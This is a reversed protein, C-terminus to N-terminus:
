GLPELVFRQDGCQFQAVADLRVPADIRVWLGNLGRNIIRWGRRGEVVEAHIPSVFPDDLLLRPAGEIAVDSRGILFPPPPCDLSLDSGGRLGTRLFRATGDGGREFTLRTGGIQLNLGPRLKATMVRVWTGDTSGTDTLLWGGGPLRDLRAHHRDLFPDQPIAIGGTIRGVVLADERLRITEGHDRGDDVVHLLAMPPRRGPRWPVTGADETSTPPPAAMVATSDAPPCRGAAPDGAAPTQHSKLLQAWGDFSEFFAGATPSSETREPSEM